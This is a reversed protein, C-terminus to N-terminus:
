AMTKVKAIDFLGDKAAVAEKGLDLGIKSSFEADEKKLKVMNTNLNIDQTPV